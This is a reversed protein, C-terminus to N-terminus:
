KNENRVGKLSRTTKLHFEEHKDLEYKHWKRDPRESNLEQM